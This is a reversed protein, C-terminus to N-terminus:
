ELFWDSYRSTHDFRILEIDNDGATQPGLRLMSYVCGYDPFAVFKKTCRAVRVREGEPSGAGFRELNQREECGATEILQTPTVFLEGNGARGVTAFGLM